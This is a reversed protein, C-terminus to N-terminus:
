FIGQRRRGMGGGGGGGRYPSGIRAQVRARRIQSDSLDTPTPNDCSNGAEAGEFWRMFSGACQSVDLLGMLHGLVHALAFPPVAGGLVDEEGLLAGGQSNLYLAGRPVARVWCVNWGPSLWNEGPCVRSFTDSAGEGRGTPDDIVTSRFGLQREAQTHVISELQWQIAAPQWLENATVVMERVQEDTVTSDLAPVLDSWLIHVRLPVSLIERPVGDPNLWYEYLRMEVAEGEYFGPIYRADKLSDAASEAVTEYGNDAGESYDAEVRRQSTRGSEHIQAAVVFGVGGVEAPSLESGAWVMKENFGQYWADDDLVPQPASYSYGFERVNGGHNTFLFAPCTEACRYGVALNMLVRVPEGRIRAPMMIAAALAREVELRFADYREIVLCRPLRTSGDPEVIVQCRMSVDYNGSPREFPTRILAFLSQEGEGLSAPAYRAPRQAFSATSVSLLLLAATTVAVGYPSHKGWAPAM